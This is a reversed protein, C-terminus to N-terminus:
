ESEVVDAEAPEEHLEAKLLEVFGNRAVELRDLADRAINQETSITQLQRVIYQAKESLDEIVYTNDEFVLTPKEQVDTM